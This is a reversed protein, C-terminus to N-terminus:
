KSHNLRKIVINFMNCVGRDRLIFLVAATFFFSFVTALIFSAIKYPVLWKVVNVVCICTAFGVICNRLFTINILGKYSPIIRRTSIFYFITMVITSVLTGIAIGSIGIIKSLVISVAINIGISILSVIMTKTTKGYSYHLQIYINNIASPILCLGYFLLLGGTKIVSNNDFNGREFIISVIENSYFLIIITIIGLLYIVLSLTKIIRNKLDEVRNEAALNLFDSLLITCLNVVIIAHVFNYLTQSYNLCSVSGEGLESSIIRDVMLSVRSIGNSIILPLWMKIILKQDDGWKPLTFVSIREYRRIGYWAAICYLASAILQGWALSLTNEANTFRIILLLAIGSLSIFLSKLGVILFDKRQRLIVLFSSAMAIFIPVFAVIRIDRILLERGESDFGPALIASLPKASFFAFITVIISILVFWNNTDSLLKLANDRGENKIKYTYQNLLAIVLGNFLTADVLTMFETATYYSDTIITAGLYAAILAQLFFSLFKEFITIGSLIIYSKTTSTTHTKNM